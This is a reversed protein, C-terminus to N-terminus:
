NILWRKRKPKMSDQQAKEILTMMDGMGLIRSAMREPYFIEFDELKEGRGTFKIPKGTVSRISLAAGGRTDGDIKTLIVGTVELQANFERAVNAAEQGIMADIVLLIENPQALAKLM